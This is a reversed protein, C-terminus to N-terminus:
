IADNTYLEEFLGRTTNYDTDFLAVEFFPETTSMTVVVDGSNALEDRTVGDANAKMGAFSGIVEYSGDGVKDKKEAIMIYGLANNVLPEIIDKSAGGGRKPVRIAMTKLFMPRGSEGNSATNSGTFPETFVNNVAISKAGEALTISNIIRPNEQNYLIVPNTDVPILVARGTYGGINPKECDAVINQAINSVCPTYM